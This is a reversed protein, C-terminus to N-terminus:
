ILMQEPYKKGIVLPGGKCIAALLQCEDLSCTIWALCEELHGVYMVMGLRYLCETLYASQIGWDIVWSVLASFM